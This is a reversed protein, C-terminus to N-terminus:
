TTRHREYVQWIESAAVDYRERSGCNEAGFDTQFVEPLLEQLGSLHEAESIRIVSLNPSGHAEGVSDNKCCM